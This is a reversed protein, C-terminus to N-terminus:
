RVVVAASTAAAYGTAAALVVRYTGKPVRVTRSGSTTYSAPLARWASGVRRQVTFTRTGGGSPGITVKLTRKVAVAKVTSARTAPATAVPAPEAAAAVPVPAPTPAIGTGSLAIDDLGMYADSAIAVAGTRVGAATPAFTVAFSCTAAPALTAGTCTNAAIAYDGTATIAGVVLPQDGVSTLVVAPSTGSEGVTREAFAIAGANLSYGSAQLIPNNEAFYEHNDANDTARAANSTALASAANQGYVYDDTSGIVNFHSLEHILTGAKSDTGTAPAGWFAGCVYITYPATPYVYAFTDQTCSSGACDIGITQTDLATAMNTYHTTVTQWRTLDYAGFWTTYRSGSAGADLYAKARGVYTRADVLARAAATQQDATCSAFAAARVAPAVARSPRGAVRLAIENSRLGGATYRVAYTGSRMFAYAGALDVVRTLTAGPALAVTAREAAPALKTLPGTYAVPGGGRSVSFLPAALVAKPLIAAPLRVARPGRNAFTVQVRVPDAAAYTPAVPRATVAVAPAAQASGALAAAGVLAALGVVVRLPLRPRVAPVVGARYRREPSRGSPATFRGM